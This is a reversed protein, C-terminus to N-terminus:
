SEVQGVAKELSRQAYRKWMPAIVLRVLWGRGPAPQFRYTWDIETQGNEDETFTWEGNANEALLGLPKPFPGVRYAFGTPRDVQTLIEPASTGDSLLVTRTQGPEDWPGSQDEVGTVGPIFLWRDFISSLDIPAIIDFAGERSVATTAQVTVDVTDTSRISHGEEPTV